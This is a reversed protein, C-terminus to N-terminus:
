NIFIELPIQIQQNSQTTIVEPSESLQIVRGIGYHSWKGDSLVLATNEDIGIKYSDKTEREVLHRVPKPLRGFYRDYHPFISLRPILNVGEIEKGLPGRFSPIRTGMFMAGASCGALSTGTMFEKVILNWVVTGRISEALYHPNGGSFYILSANAILVSWDKEADARNRIDVFKPEVGIKEAQAEGLKKWYDIREESEQGAATAIQVFGGHKGRSKGLEILKTELDIMPETYEGSGVLALAGHKM